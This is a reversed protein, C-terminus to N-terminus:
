AAGGVRSAVVEAGLGRELLALARAELADDDHSCLLVPELPPGGPGELVFGGAGCIECEERRRDRQRSSEQLKRAGELREAEQRACTRVFALPDRVVSRGRKRELADLAHTAVQVSFGDELLTARLDQTGKAAPKAKPNANSSEESQSREEYVKESPSRVGPAKERDGSSGKVDTSLSGTQPAKERDSSSDAVETSLSRTRPAKEDDETPAPLGILSRSGRGRAAVYAVIGLDRLRRLAQSTHQIQWRTLDDRETGYVFRAVQAVYLRDELRSYTSVLAIVACLVAREFPAVSSAKRLAERVAMGVVPFPDRNPARTHVAQTTM